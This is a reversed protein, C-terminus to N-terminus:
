NSLHASLREIYWTCFDDVMYEAPAYPGPEYAMSGAGEQAWSVFSADQENTTKWVQTLNDLDYDEGEVADKHVLWTTRVLTRDPALPLTAFTVVHDGLFHHWSNPQTHVHLTGLRPNTFGNLLKRSAARADMTYSEGPGDLALRETRFASPRGRLLEIPKWPLGAEDWIETFEAHTKLYREYYAQQAPTVDNATYGFFHFLSCLLEPHNGCHYCERNNEITLKWNGNEVLDIQTAVKCDRLGHPAVYPEVQAAVDDFDAPADEALCIFLLGALNRVHVPKLGHTGKEICSAMNEAHILRGSLDYTWQHYPCVLNGTVGHGAPLLRSGRHRCVNHFARVQMDDDRVLIVSNPGVNVTVYDGPERIEPESAVFIWHRSFILDLDLDLIERSTYFPAELSRGQRRRAVLAAIDARSLTM